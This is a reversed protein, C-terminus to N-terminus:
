LLKLEGAVKNIMDEPGPGIGLVTKSGPAIQTRGADRILCTILGFDEARKNLAMLQEEDPCKLAIKTQGCHEWRRRAAAAAKNKLTKKYCGVAAHSCQAAVKGKGMKLDQRVVLVMKYNVDDGDGGESDTSWDEEDDTGEEEEEDDHEEDDESKRKSQGVLKLGLTYGIATGVCASLLATAMTNATSTPVNM